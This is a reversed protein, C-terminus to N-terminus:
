FVTDLMGLLFPSVLYYKAPCVRGKLLDEAQEDFLVMREGPFMSYGESRYVIKLINMKRDDDFRVADLRLVAETRNMYGFVCDSFVQAESWAGNVRFLINM